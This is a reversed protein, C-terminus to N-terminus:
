YLLIAPYESGTILSVSLVFQSITIYPFSAHWFLYNVGIQAGCTIINVFYTMISYIEIQKPMESENIEALM